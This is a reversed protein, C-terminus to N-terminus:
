TAYARRLEKYSYVFLGVAIAGWVAMSILYGVPEDALAVVPLGKGRKPIFVVRDIVGRAIAHLSFVLIPALVLLKMTAKAKPWCKAIRPHRQLISAWLGGVMFGFAAITAVALGLPLGIYFFVLLLPASFTDVSPAVTLLVLLPFLLLIAWRLCYRAYRMRYASLSEHTFREPGM